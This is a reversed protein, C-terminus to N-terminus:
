PAERVNDHRDRPHGSGFGLVSQSNGQPLQAHLAAQTLLLKGMSRRQMRCPDRMELASPLIRRPPGHPSEGDCELHREPREGGACLM